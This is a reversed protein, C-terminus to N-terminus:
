PAAVPTGAYVEAMPLVIGLSELPLDADLSRVLTSLWRDGDQRTVLEVLCQNPVIFLLCQLSTISQYGRRKENMNYRKTSPSEVEVVLVPDGVETIGPDAPGCRVFTEPYVVPGLPCRIKLNSGHVFCGSGQLRNGLARAVNMSVLDHALTGGSMMRVVDGILEYRASQQNEWTVFADPDTPIKRAAQTM